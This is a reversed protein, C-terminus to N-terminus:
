KITDMIEKTIKKLKDIIKIHSAKLENKWEIKLGKNKLEVFYINENGAYDKLTRWNMVKESSIIEIFYKNLISVVQDKKNKKIIISASYSNDTYSESLLYTSIAVNSDSKSYSSEQANMSPINLLLVAFAITKIKMM